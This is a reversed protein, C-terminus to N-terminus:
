KRPRSNTGNFTAIMRRPCARPFFPFSPFKSSPSLLELLSNDRQIAAAANPSPSFVILVVDIQIASRL